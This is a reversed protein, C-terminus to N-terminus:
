CDEFLLTMRHRGSPQGQLKVHYALDLKGKKTQNRFHYNIHETTTEMQMTGFQYEFNGITTKGKAFVQRMSVSGSRIILVKEEDIKVVTNVKQEDDEHIESFSLFTSGAKEYRQGEGHLSVTEQRNNDHIETVLKVSIPKKVTTESSM